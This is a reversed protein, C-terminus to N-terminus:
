RLPTTDDFLLLGLGSGLGGAGLTLTLSLNELFRGSGPDRTMLRSM